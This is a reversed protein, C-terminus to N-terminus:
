STATPGALIALLSPGGRGLLSASLKSEEELPERTLVLPPVDDPVKQESDNAEGAAARSM